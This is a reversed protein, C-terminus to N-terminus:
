MKKEMNWHPTKFFSETCEDLLKFGNKKYFCLASERAKLKLLKSGLNKAETEIASLIESGVGKSQESVAVAMFRIYGTSLDGNDYHLRGVGVINGGDFAAFHYSDPDKKDHVSSRSYGSPKNMVEYRLDYYQKWEDKTKPPRIKM